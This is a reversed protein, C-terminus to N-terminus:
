TQLHRPLVLDYVKVGKGRKGPLRKEGSPKLWGAKKLKTTHKNATTRAIGSNNGVTTMSPYANKGTAIDAYTSITFGVLKVTSAFNSARLERQWDAVSLSGTRKTSPSVPPQPERHAESTQEDVVAAHETEPPSDTENPYPMRGRTQTCFDDGAQCRWWRGVPGGPLFEREGILMPGHGCVPHTLTM